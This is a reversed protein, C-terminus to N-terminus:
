LVPIDFLLGTRQTKCLASLGVIRAHIYNAFVDCTFGMKLGMREEEAPLSVSPLRDLRGRRMRRSLISAPM